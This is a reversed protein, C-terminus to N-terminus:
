QDSILVPASPRDTNSGAAKYLFTVVPWVSTLAASSGLSSSLIEGRLCWSVFIPGSQLARPM